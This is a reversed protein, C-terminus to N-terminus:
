CNENDHWCHSAPILQVEQITCHICLRENCKYSQTWSEQCSMCRCTNSVTSQALHVLIVMGNGKCRDQVQKNTSIYILYFNAVNKFAVVTLTHFASFLINMKLFLRPNETLFYINERPFYRWFDSFQILNTQKAAWLSIRIVSFNM